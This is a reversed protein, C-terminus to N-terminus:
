KALIKLRFNKNYSNEAGKVQFIGNHSKIHLMNQLVDWQIINDVVEAELRFLNSSEASHTLSFGLILWM